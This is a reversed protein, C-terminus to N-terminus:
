MAPMASFRPSGAGLEDARAQFDRALDRMALRMAQDATREAIRLCDQARQRLSLASDPHDHLSFM